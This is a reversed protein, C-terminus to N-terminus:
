KLAEIITKSINSLKIRLAENEKKAIDLNKETNKNQKILSEAEEQLARVKEKEGNAEALIVEAKSIKEQALKSLKKAEDEADKIIQKAKLEFNMLSEEAKAAKGSIENFQREYLTIRKKINNEEQELNLFKREEQTTLIKAM